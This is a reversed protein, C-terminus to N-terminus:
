NIGINRKIFNIIREFNEREQAKSKYYSKYKDSNMVLNVLTMISKLNKRILDDNFLAPNMRNLLGFNYSLQEYDPSELLHFTEVILNNIEYRDNLNIDEKKEVAKKPKDVERLLFRGTKRSKEPVLNRPPNAVHFRKYAFEDLGTKRRFNWQIVRNEYKDFAMVDEYLTIELAGNNLEKIEYAEDFNLFNEKPIYKFYEEGLWMKWCSFINLVFSSMFIRGPLYEKDIKVADKTPAYTYADSILKIGELPIKNREWEYPNENNQWYLDFASQIDGYYIKEKKILEEIYQIVQLLKSRLVTMVIATVNSKGISIGIMLSEVPKLVTGQESCFSLAYNKKNSLIINKMEEVSIDTDDTDEDNSALLDIREYDIYELIGLFNLINENNLTIFDIKIEVFDKLPRPKM